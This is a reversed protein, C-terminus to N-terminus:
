IDCAEDFDCIWETALKLIQNAFLAPNNEVKGVCYHHLLMRMKWTWRKIKFLCSYLWSMNNEKLGSLMSRWTSFRKVPTGLNKKYFYFKRFNDTQDWHNWLVVKKFIRNDIWCCLFAILLMSKVVLDVKHCFSHDTVM